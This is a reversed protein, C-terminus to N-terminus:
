DTAVNHWNGREPRGPQSSVSRIDWGIKNRLCRDSNLVSPVWATNLHHICHGSPPSLYICSKLKWYAICFCMLLFYFSTVWLTFANSVSTWTSIGVMTTYPALDLAFHESPLYCLLHVSLQTQQSPRTEAEANETYVWSRTSCGQRISALQSGVFWSALCSASHSIIM